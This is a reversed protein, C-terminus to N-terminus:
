NPLNRLRESTFILSSSTQDRQIVPATAHVVTPQKLEVASQLIAFDVPTTLDVLIRVGKKVITEYGVYTVTLDYTGVPVNIIFYEGDDDTQSALNTGEVRITAGALPSKNDTQLVVGSIKGTVGAFASQAGSIVALALACM